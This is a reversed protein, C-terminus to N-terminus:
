AAMYPDYFLYGALLEIIYCVSLYYFGSEYSCYYLFSDSSTITPWKWGVANECTMDRPDVYIQIIEELKEL